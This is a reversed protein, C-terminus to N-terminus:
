RNATAAVPGVKLGVIKLVVCDVAEYSTANASYNLGEVNGTETLRSIEQVKGKGEVVAVVEYPTEEPLDKLMTRKLVDAIHAKIAADYRGAVAIGNITMAFDYEGPKYDWGMRNYVDSLHITKGKFAGVRTPDFDDAIKFREMMTPWNQNAKETLDAMAQEARRQAGLVAEDYADVVKRARAQLAAQQPAGDLAIRLDDEALRSLRDRKDQDMQVKEAEAIIAEANKLLKALATDRQKKVSDVFAKIGPEDKVVAWIDSKERNDLWYNARGVLGATKAAGLNSNAENQVSCLEAFTPVKTEEEWGEYEYGYSEWNSKITELVEVAMAKAYVKNFNADIAEFKALLAKAEANEPDVEGSLERIRDTRYGYSQVAYDRAAPSDGQMDALIEAMGDEVDKVKEKLEEIAAAAQKQAAVKRYTAITKRIKAIEEASLVETTEEESLFEDLDAANENFSIWDDLYEKLDNLQSTAENRIYEAQASNAAGSMQKKIAAIEALLADKDAGSVDELETEALMLNTEADGAKEEALAKKADALYERAEDLGAFAPTGALLLASAITAARMATKITM